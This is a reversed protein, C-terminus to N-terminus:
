RTLGFRRLFGSLAPGVRPITELDSATMGGIALLVVLYTVAGAAIAAVTALDTSATMSTVLSFAGAVALAMASVAVAPKLVTARLDIVSGVLREMSTLNIASAVVFGGVTGLAAGRIGFAPIATLTWSIAAKVLAGVALSRVPLATRGLGQLVGSATQQLALFFLGSALAAVPVGAMPQKFLLGPIESSLLYFGVVCPLTLIVTMRVGLAARERIVDWRGLAAAESVAPVLALSVASTVSTPMFVLPFAMQSLQGFLATARAAAVGGAQLRIPVIAADLMNMLPMIVAAVSIPVALAILEALIRGTGGGPPSGDGLRQETGLRRHAGCARRAPGEELGLAGGERWFMVLLVILGALGGAVAGSTAGAAAYELGRPLLMLAMVVMATVRVIQEAVQSIATPTMRHLGQFYGRLASMIAVFFIAPSIAVISLYARPEHYFRAFFGASLYLVCSFLAGSLALFALSVRTVRRADVLRGRAVRDAIMKCVALPIGMTSVTLLMNYIPYAMGYLGLGEDGIVWSLPIRYIAGLVRSVLGALALVMAGQLFSERTM